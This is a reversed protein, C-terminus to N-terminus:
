WESARELWAETEPHMTEWTRVYDKVRDALTVTEDFGEKEVFAEIEEESKREGPWEDANAVRLVLRSYNAAADRLNAMKVKDVTDYRTHGYGRGGKKRSAEPDGGSGCPVGKLFFPWHDSYPTVKQLYPIEATTERAVREVFPELAPQGHLIIGKDGDRGATDLNLMFRLSALEDEHRAMYERSVFLGIEEAGFLALRVRRKLSGAVKTFVRAMEMVVVAGSVPDLAGQAIDHGDYHCGVLAYAEDEASGALDGIVNYTTMMENEDTTTLRVRVEGERKLLRALFSGAEHSVGVSPIIPSISGTPPGYAPYHNMFIWGKAGALVSRLYKESRHLRRKMGLPNRSTVMVINGEIEEKRKEYSPIAGDELFVLRGEVQDGLGMPLSICDIEKGMPDIVELRVPGRTWGPVEFSEYHANDVGYDKLTEVVWEVAALGDPSGTWRSGYVDCLVEVNDLLASSTYIEALIERDVDLYPNKM